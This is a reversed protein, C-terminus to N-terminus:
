QFKTIGYTRHVQCLKKATVTFVARCVTRASIGEYWLLRWYYTAIHLTRIKFAGRTYVVYLHGRKSARANRIACHTIKNTAYVKARVNYWMCWVRAQRRDTGTCIAKPELRSANATLPETIGEHSVRVSVAWM